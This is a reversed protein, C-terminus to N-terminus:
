SALRKRRHALWFLGSMGLALLGYFGPEPVIQLGGLRFQKTDDANFGLVGIGSLEIRDILQGNIATITFWNSGESGLNYPLLGTFSSGFNDYATITVKSDAAANINFVASTFYALSNNLDIELFPITGSTATIRAQGSAATTLITGASTTFDVIFGSQNSSGQVTIGTFILGAGQLNVIEDVLSGNNGTAIVINAQVPMVTLGLVFALAAVSSFIKSENFKMLVDGATEESLKRTHVQETLM